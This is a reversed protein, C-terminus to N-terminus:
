QHNKFIDRLVSIGRQLEERSIILPPLFRLVKGATANFIVGRELGELVLPFADITLEMGQMLGIGRCERILHPFEARLDELCQRLYNGTKCVHAMLDHNEIESLVVLGAACSLANGGFTTGHEGRALVERLEASVLFAGLPLGGGVAKAIAVLDPRLGFHEWALFKGTRGVGTQIEDAIILFGFRSKLRQLEEVFDAAAPVVGGEGQIFELIVAATQVNAARRLADPDNFPIYQVGSLLPRFNKQYKEQATVSLSGLTRGHFSKDFCIIGSRGNLNAWKKAIKLCGEISETGSNTLFLSDFGSLLLIKRALEIQIDQVFYNSLHLNRHLQQEIAENIGPHDYGLANVGLGSFLDLYARNQRDFLYVGKGYAIEVPLRKFVPLFLSDAEALLDVSNNGKKKTIKLL